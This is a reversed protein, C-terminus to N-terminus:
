EGNEPPAEEAPKALAEIQSAMDALRRELQTTHATRAEELQNAQIRQLVAQRHLAISLEDMYLGPKELRTLSAEDQAIKTVTIRQAAYWLEGAPEFSVAVDGKVDVKVTEQRDLIAIVQGAEGKKADARHLRMVCPGVPVVDIAITRAGYGDYHIKEGAEYRAFKDINRIHM